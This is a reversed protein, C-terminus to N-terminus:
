VVKLHRVQQGRLYFGVVLVQLGVHPRVPASVDTDLGSELRHKRDHTVVAAHHQLEDTILQAFGAKVDGFTLLAPQNVGARQVHYHLQHNKVFTTTASLNFFRFILFDVEAIHRQHGVVAGEDDVAGLADDDGLQM